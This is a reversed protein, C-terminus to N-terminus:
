HPTMWYGHGDNDFEESDSEQKRKWFRLESRLEDAISAFGYKELWDIGRSVHKAQESFGGAISAEEMSLQMQEYLLNANNVTPPQCRFPSCRIAESCMRRYKVSHSIRLGNIEDALYSQQICGSWDGDTAHELMRYFAWARDTGDSCTANIDILSGSRRVTIRLREGPRFVSLMSRVKKESREIDNIAVIDDGPLLGNALGEESLRTPIENWTSQAGLWCVREGNLLAQNAELNAQIAAEARLKLHTRYSEAVAYEPIILCGWLLVM